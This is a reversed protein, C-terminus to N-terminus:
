MKFKKVLVPLFEAWMKASPHHNDVKYEPTCLAKGGGTEAEINVTEFGLEKLKEYEEDSFYDSDPVIDRKNEVSCEDDTYMLMILKAKPYRQKIIEVSKGLIDFMLKSTYERNKTLKDQLHYQYYKVILFRYWFPCHKKDASVLNGNKDYYYRLYLGTEHPWGQIFHLRRRQDNIYTYIIYDPELEKINENVELQKLMHAFTWGEGGLNYVPRKTLKSLQGSLNEEDSLETGYIVSYGFLLIPAKKYNKGAIPIQHEGPVDFYVYFPPTTYTRLMHTIAFNQIFQWQFKVAFVFCVLEATLLLVFISIINILVIKIIKKM